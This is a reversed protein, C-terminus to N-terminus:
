KCGHYKPHFGNQPEILTTGSTPWVMQNGGYVGTPAKAWTAAASAGYAGNDWNFFASVYSSCSSAGAECPRSLDYKLKFSAFGCGRKDTVVVNPLGGLPVAYGSEEATLPNVAGLDWMTYIANPFANRITVNVTYLGNRDKKSSLKGSIKEWDRVTPDISFGKKRYVSPESGSETFSVPTARKDLSTFGPGLFSNGVEGLPINVTSLEIDGGPNFFDFFSRTTAVPLNRDTDSFITGSYDLGDQYVGIEDISPSVNLYPVLPSAMSYDVVPKGNYSNIGHVVYGQFSVRKQTHASYKDRASVQSMLGLSLALLLPAQAIMKIKNM